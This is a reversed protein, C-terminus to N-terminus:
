APSPIASPMPSSIPLGCAQPALIGVAPMSALLPSETWLAALTFFLAFDCFFLFNSPGYNKWYFWVQVGVFLTFGVKLWLPVRRPSSAVSPEDM